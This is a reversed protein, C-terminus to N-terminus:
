SLIKVWRYSNRKIKEIIRYKFIFIPYSKLFIRANNQGIKSQFFSWFNTSWDTEPYVSLLISGWLCRQQKLFIHLIQIFNFILVCFIFYFQSILILFFDLNLQQPHTEHSEDLVSHIWCSFFIGSKKFEFYHWIRM